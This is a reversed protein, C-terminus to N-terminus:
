GALHAESWDGAHLHGTHAAVYQEGLQDGWLQARAEEGAYLADEPPKFGVFFSKADLVTVGRAELLRRARRAASGWFFRPAGIKTCFTAAVVRAPEVVVDAIWERQGIGQSVQPVKVRRQADQRSAPRSMGFAHTPGGVVVLGVDPPLVRPATGVEVVGTKLHTSLGDAIAQAIRQTNGYMSEYVVLARMM